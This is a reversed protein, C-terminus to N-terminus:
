GFQGRVSVSTWPWRVKGFVYSQIMLASLMYTLTYAM